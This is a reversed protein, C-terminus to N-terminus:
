GTSILVGILLHVANIHISNFYVLPLTGLFSKHTITSNARNYILKKDVLLASIHQMLITKREGVNRWCKVWPKFAVVTLVDLLNARKLPIKVAAMIWRFLTLTWKSIYVPPIKLIRSRSQRDPPLSFFKNCVWFVWFPFLFSLPFSFSHLIPLRAPGQQLIRRLVQLCKTCHRVFYHHSWTSARQPLM